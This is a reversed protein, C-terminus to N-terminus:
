TADKYQETKDYTLVKRRVSQARRSPYLRIITEHTREHM